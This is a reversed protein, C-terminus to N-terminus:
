REKTRRAAFAVIQLRKELGLKTLINGVYNKVTQNALHLEAAIEKNSRGEAVLGLVRREQDTLDSLPDTTGMRELLRQSVWPDVEIHGEAVSLLASAIREPPANRDVYGTAGAVIADVLLEATDESTLVLCPIEPYRTRIERCMEVTSIGPFHMDLLVVDIGAGALQPIAAFSSPADGAVTVGEITSLTEVIQRRAIEDHQFVFVNLRKQAPM